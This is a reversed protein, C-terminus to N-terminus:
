SFILLMYRVLSAGTSALFFAHDGQTATDPHSAIPVLSIAVSGRTGMYAWVWCEHCWGGRRHPRQAAPPRNPIRTYVTCSIFMYGSCVGDLGGSRVIMFKCPLGYTDCPGSERAGQLAGSFLTVSKPEHQTSM